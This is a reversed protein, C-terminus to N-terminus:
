LASSHCFFFIRVCLSLFFLYLAYVWVARQCRFSIDWHFRYTDPVLHLSLIKRYGKASRAFYNCTHEAWLNNLETKKVREANSHRARYTWLVKEVCSIYADWQEGIFLQQFRWCWSWCYWYELDFVCMTIFNSCVRLKKKPVSLFQTISFRMFASVMFLSTALVVVARWFFFHFSKSSIRFVTWIIWNFMRENQKGNDFSLLLLPLLSFACFFQISFM